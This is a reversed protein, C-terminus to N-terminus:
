SHKAEGRLLDQVESKFSEKDLVFSKVLRANVICDGVRVNRKRLEDPEQSSDIWRIPIERDIERIYKEMKKLFFPYTAPCFNPGCIILVRGRDESQPTYEADQEEIPRYVFGAQLPYYLSDPDEGIPRFGKRTFFERATYQDHAGGEFTNVVLALPPRNDFWAMPKNVDEMLSAFLRSAVGKRLCGGPPVYICDIYIIREEPVPKYQIMGVPERGQYAVKAFSGWRQLMGAAWQKKEEAGRRWDPDLERESPLCVRCLDEVSEEVVNEVRIEDM